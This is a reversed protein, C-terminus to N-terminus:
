RIAGFEGWCYGTTAQGSRAGGSSAPTTGADTVLQVRGMAVDKLWARWGDCCKDMRETANDSDDALGCRALASCCEELTGSNADDPALPLTVAARLYSDMFRSSTSLQRELRALAAQAAAMEDASPTGTWDGGAEVAIADTLLQATLLQQEDALLQTAETLGYRSIFQPPTAYNM